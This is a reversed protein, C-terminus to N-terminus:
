DGKVQSLKETKGLKKHDRYEQLMSTLYRM